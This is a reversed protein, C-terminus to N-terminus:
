SHWWTPAELQRLDDVVPVAPEAPPAPLDGYLDKPYRDWYGRYLVAGCGAARFIGPDPKATGLDASSVVHSFPPGGRRELFTQWTEARRASNTVLISPIGRGGLRRVLDDAEPNLRPPYRVLGAASLASAAEGAAGRVTANLRRAVHDLVVAPDTTVSAHGNVRLGEGVAEAAAGVEEETLVPGRPRTLWELLVARRAEDWGRQDSTTHYFTTFWLDLSLARFRGMPKV